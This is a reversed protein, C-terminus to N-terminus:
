PCLPLPLQLANANAVAVLAPFNSRRPFHPLADCRLLMSVLLFCRRMRQTCHLLWSVFCCAHPSVLAPGTTTDKGPTRQRMMGEAWTCKAVPIACAFTWPRAALTQPSSWGLKARLRQGGKDADYLGVTSQAGGPVDKPDGFPSVDDYIQVRYYEMAVLLRCGRRNYVGEPGWMYLITDRVELYHGSGVRPLQVYESITYCSPRCPPHWGGQVM